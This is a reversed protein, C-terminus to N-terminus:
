DFVSIHITVEPTYQMPELMSVPTACKTISIVNKDCAIYETLYFPMALYIQQCFCCYSYWLFYYTYTRLDIVLNLVVSCWEILYCLSVYKLKPFPVSIHFMIMIMFLMFYYQQFLELILDLRLITSVSSFDLCRVCKFHLSCLIRCQWSM